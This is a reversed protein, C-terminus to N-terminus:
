LWAWKIAFAFCIWFQTALPATGFWIDEWIRIKTGDGVAWRYGFKLAKAAWLIGKWFTSPQSINTANRVYKRAIIERWLKGENQIFRKVWSGRLVLNLDRINPVGM